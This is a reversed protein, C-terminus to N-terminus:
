REEDLKDFAAKTLDWNEILLCNLFEEPEENDKEQGREERRQKFNKVFNNGM